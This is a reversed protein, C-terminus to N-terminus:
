GTVTTRESLDFDRASLEKLESRLGESMVAHNEMTEQQRTEHYLGSEDQINERGFQVTGTEKLPSHCKSVWLKHKLTNMAIPNVM